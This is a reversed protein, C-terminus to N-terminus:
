RRRNNKGSDSDKIDKNKTAKEGKKSKSTRHDSSNVGTTSKRSSQNTRVNKDTGSSANTRNTVGSNSRRTTGTGTVSTNTIRTSQSGSRRVQNNVSSNDSYRRYERPHSRAFLAEGDKREEPHSYTSMYNGSRIRSYVNPSYTRRSSFYFDNWHNYRHNDWHRYHGYYYNYWRYHYGYYYDWYFPQWPHWYSPWYGWYWASHWVVYRPAYIFRIVPWSAILVPSTRTIIINGGGTYGPNPTLGQDDFIPEIIYNRGYLEEDGTLQIQVQGDPLRQVTFVAVDQNERESVADQLIINHVNGDVYDNVKIYDVMNDGNLDLNNIRLSPDNLSREFGELTKSDQFLKMVAYLNLNDGPLGLRDDQRDQATITIGTAFFALLILSISFKKM